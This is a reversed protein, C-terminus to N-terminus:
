QGAKKEAPASPKGPAMKQPAVVPPVANTPNQAPQAKGASGGLRSDGAHVITGTKLSGTNVIPPVQAGPRRKPPFKTACGKVEEQSKAALMCDLMAPGNPDSQTEAVCQIVSEDARARVKEVIRVDANSDVMIKVLNDYATRCKKALEPNPKPAAAAVPQTPDLKAQAEDAVKEEAKEDTAAAEAKKAESDSGEAAVKEAGEEGEAAVAQEGEQHEEGEEGCGLLSLSFMSIIMLTTMLYAQRM